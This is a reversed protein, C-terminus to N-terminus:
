KGYHGEVPEYVPFHFLGTRQLKGSDVLQKLRRNATTQTCAMLSQFDQRSIHPHTSFHSQLRAEMEEETLLKSHRKRPAREFRITELRDKLAKEPRFVVSDLRISESRIEKETCVPPCSLTIQFYGFGEIHIREGNRFCDVAIDSLASLVAKVDAPTVTCRSHIRKAMEDTGVTASTVVRAHLRPKKKGSPPNQYFDYQTSM